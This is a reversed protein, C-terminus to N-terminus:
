VQPPPAGDGAWPGGRELLASLRDLDAPLQRQVLPGVVPGALRRSGKLRLDVSVSVRTGAGEPSLRVTVTAEGGDGSGYEGWLADPELAVVELEVRGVGRTTERWRTGVRTPTPGDVEVDSTNEQWLPRNRPDVMIAFVREPPHPLLHDVEIRV